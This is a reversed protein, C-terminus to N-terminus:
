GVQWAWVVMVWRREGGVWRRRVSRGSVFSLSLEHVGLTLALDGLASPFLDYACM